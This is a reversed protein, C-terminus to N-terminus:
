SVRHLRRVDFVFSEKANGRTDNVRRQYSIVKKGGAEIAQCIDTLFGFYTAHMPEVRYEVDNIVMSLSDRWQVDFIIVANRYSDTYNDWDEINFTVAYQPNIGYLEQAKFLPTQVAHVKGLLEVKLTHSEESNIRGSVGSLM